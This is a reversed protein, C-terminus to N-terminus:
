APQVQLRFPAYAEGFQQQRGEADLVLLAEETQDTIRFLVFGFREPATNLDTFPRELVALEFEFLPNETRARLVAAEIAPLPKYVRGYRKAFKRLSYRCWVGPHRAFISVVLWLMYASAAVTFMGDFFSTFLSDVWHGQMPRSLFTTGHHLDYLMVGVMAFGLLAFWFKKTHRFWQLILWIRNPPLQKYAEGKMYVDIGCAPINAPM